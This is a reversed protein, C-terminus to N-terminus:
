TLTQRAPHAASPLTGDVSGSVVAGARPGQGVWQLPAPLRLRLGRGKMNKSETVNEEHEVAKM